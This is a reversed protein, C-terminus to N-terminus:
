ALEIVGGATMLVLLAHAAGTTKRYAELQGRYANLKDANMVVDSKWDVIVEIKGASNAAVADAIGSVLVEGKTDTQWGYITYEPVLRPPRMSHADGARLLVPQEQRDESLARGRYLTAGPAARYHKFWGPVGISNTLSSDPGQKTPSHTIRNSRCELKLVAITSLPPSNRHVLLDRAVGIQDPRSIAWTTAGADQLDHHAIRIVRHANGDENKECPINDV